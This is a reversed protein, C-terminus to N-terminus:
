IFLRIRCKSQNYQYDLTQIKSIEAKISYPKYGKKLNFIKLLGSTSNKKQLNLM